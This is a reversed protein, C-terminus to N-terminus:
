QYNLVSSSLINKNTGDTGQYQLSGFIAKLKFMLHFDFQIKESVNSKVEEM